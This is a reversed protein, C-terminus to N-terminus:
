QGSRVLLLHANRNVEIQTVTANRETVIVSVLYLVDPTLDRIRYFSNGSPTRFALFGNAEIRWAIFRLAPSDSEVTGDENLVLTADMFSRTPAGTRFENLTYTGLTDARYLQWTGAMRVEQSYANAALLVLALTITMRRM